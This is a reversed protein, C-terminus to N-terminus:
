SRFNKLYINKPEFSYEKQLFESILSNIKMGGALYVRSNKINGPFHKRIYELINEPHLPNIVSFNLPFSHDLDPFLRGPHKSYIFSEVKKSVALARNIEYLFSLGTHDGILFYQNGSHDTVTENLFRRFFVSDGEQATCMWDKVSNDEATIVFDATHYVPEYNWFAYERSRSRPSYYPNCLFIEATYGAAYQITSFDRSQVKIHFTDYAIKNKSLIIGTFIDSPQRESNNM